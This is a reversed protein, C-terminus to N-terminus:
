ITVQDNIEIVPIHAINSWHEKTKYREELLPCVDIHLLELSSPLSDEPLTELKRCFNFYLSKLSSPLSKEPLSVLESCGDFCLSELSSLHRLGNGELSKTESLNEINLSVLSIPLKREKLFMNVIDDGGIRLKSLTTLGQLGWETVPKTIRVSNVVIFRRLNPPLVAQELFSLKLKPFNFLAMSELATLTDMRQPLSKLAECSSVYLYQLTSLSFPSTESIFISELSRCASIELWQLTPFCNLPFSTLEHCSRHLELTVLSTYNRWTEPPLFTLNDCEQICLSQLSTPLGKKPFATLSQLGYLYLDRLCTNNIILKPISLLMNCSEIMNDHLLCPSDSELLLRQTSETKSEFDWDRGIFLRKISSLWPQISPTVLLNDCSHIEIAEISSLHSPLHGMLKPCKSLVLTKLLPFPILNDQFPLWEKWNPMEEIVLKELSPFPQFSSNSGGGVIGYFEQGITELIMIRTIQLDKLSPLQGLPPLTMCYTCNDICLSVM